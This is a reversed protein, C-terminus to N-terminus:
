LRWCLVLSLTSLSRASSSPNGHLPPLADNPLSILFRSSILAPAYLDSRHSPNSPIDSKHLEDHAIGTAQFLVEPNYGSHMKAAVNRALKALLSHSTLPKFDKSLLETSTSYEMEALTVNDYFQNRFYAKQKEPWQLMFSDIAVDIILPYVAQQLKDIQDSTFHESHASRNTMHLFFYLFEYFVYMECEVTERQTKEPPFLPKM